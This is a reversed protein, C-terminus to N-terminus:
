KEASQQSVVQPYSIALLGLYTLVGNVVLIELGFKYGGLLQVSYLNLLYGLAPAIV